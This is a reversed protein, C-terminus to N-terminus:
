SCGQIEAMGSRIKLKTALNAREERGKQTRGEVELGHRHDADWDGEWKHEM